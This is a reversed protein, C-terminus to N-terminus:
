SGDRLKRGSALLWASLWGFALVLGCVIAIGGLVPVDSVGTMGYRLGNVMYLIPNFASVIAWREPLMEISYFVGGLFILPMLLFSPLFNVQDFDSALIAVILGLLAFALSTLIMFLLTIGVHHLTEAGMLGAVVWIVIGTLLARLVSAGLYGTMIQLPSLPTLLIDVVSGHMKGLFLSFAANMYASTILNLMILGPVLFDVYPIGHVEQLRAGLTFGFVVFYLMTTLVPSVLTHGAMKMFRKTERKFLVYCGRWGREKRALRTAEHIRRRAAEGAQFRQAEPDATGSTREVM